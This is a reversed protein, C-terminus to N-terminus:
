LSLSEGSEYISKFGGGGMRCRAFAMVSAVAGDIKKRKNRKDLKINGASDRTTVANCVQWTLAPNRFHEFLRGRVHREFDMCPESMALFTQRFEVVPLGDAALDQTIQQTKFPDYAFERPNYKAILRQCEDKIFGFDTVNGPTLTYFGGDAWETYRAGRDEAEKEKAVDEPLYFWALLGFRGDDMKFAFVIATSDNVLGLDLAGCCPLGSMSDPNIAGDSCAKWDEPEIWQATRTVWQNMKYRRFPIMANPGGNAARQYDDRFQDVSLTVGLSPNAKRWQEEDAPDAGKDAEHIVPLLSTDAVVGDRVAKAYSYLEFGLSEEDDGATSIDIFLPQVRSGGAFKLADHLRRGPGSSWAHVEDKILTSANLGENAGADASLAQFFSLSEPHTFRKRSPAFKLRRALEPSAKAMAEAKRYIMGAQDRTNAAAYVEAGPEGDGFVGILVLAATLTTKGNKKAVWVSCERFRRTGDPRVWSYLPLVLGDRQWDLLEFPEGAWQGEFHRLYGSCFRVIRMGLREDFRCGDRVAREDQENLTWRRTASDTM